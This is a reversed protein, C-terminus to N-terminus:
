SSWEDGQREFWLKHSDGSVNLWSLAQGDLTVDIPQNPALHAVDIALRSVNSTTGVFTRTDVNQRIAVHSPELQQQQAEIGVWYCTSSVAPNATTFDIYNQDAAPQTSQQRFFEMMR